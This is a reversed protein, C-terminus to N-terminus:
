IPTAAHLHFHGALDAENLSIYPVLPVLSAASHVIGSAVPENAMAETVHRIGDSTSLDAPGATIWHSFEAALSALEAESRAAAIVRQKRRALEVAFARGIGSSAGTVIYPM